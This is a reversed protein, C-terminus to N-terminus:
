IKFKVGLMNVLDISQFKDIILGRLSDFDISLGEIKCSSFDLGNLSTDFIESGSLNVDNFELKTECYPFIEHNKLFYFQYILKWWSIGGTKKM